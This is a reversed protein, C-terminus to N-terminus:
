DISGAALQAKALDALEKDTLPTMVELAFEPVLRHEQVMRNTMRDRYSRISLFKKAKLFKYICYPVHYGNDTKEGFPVYKRVTGMYKNAVTIIEGPIDKKNPNLCTIRLRILRMNEKYIRAHIRARRETESEQKPEAVDEKEALKAEIRAKLTELGINNSYTIGLKDARQKLLTMEDAQLETEAM